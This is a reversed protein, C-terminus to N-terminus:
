PVRQCLCIYYNESIMNKKLLDNKLEKLKLNFVYPVYNPEDAPIDTWRLSCTFTLFVDPKRYKIILVMADKYWQQM